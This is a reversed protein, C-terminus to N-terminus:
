KEIARLARDAYVSMAQPLDFSGDKLCWHFVVGRAGIFLWDGAEEASIELSLVRESIARSLINTLTDQMARGKKVILKNSTSYIRRALDLGTDTAVFSAYRSFFVIVRERGGYASSDPESFQAFREDALRFIEELISDKSSFHHYFAGVSCCARACIDVINTQDFGKEAILALATDFIRKKSAESKLSRTRTTNGCM